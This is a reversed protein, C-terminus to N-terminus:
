WTEVTLETQPLQTRLKELTTQDVSNVLLIRDTQGPIGRTSETQVPTKYVPVNNKKLLDLIRERQRKGWKPGHAVLTPVPYQQYWHGRLRRCGYKSNCGDHCPKSGGQQLFHFPIKADACQDRIDLFWDEPVGGKPRPDYRDSEGGTFCWKVSTGLGHKHLEPLPELLPECSVWRLTTKIRNLIDMRWYFQPTEVTVGLWVHSYAKNWETEWDPPLCKEPNSLVRSIRKTLIHFRHQPTRRIVEWAKFRWQDADQHFFDSLSCTFIMERRRWHLPPADDPTSTADIGKTPTLVRPNFKTGAMVRYVYCRECGKSVFPQPCGIYPNWSTSSKPARHKGRKRPL